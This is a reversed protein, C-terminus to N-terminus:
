AKILVFGILGVVAMLAVMWLVTALVSQKKVRFFPYPGDYKGFGNLALMILGYALTILVPLLLWIEDPRTEWLLYSLLSMAPCLVHHFLGNGRILLKKADGGMPILVCVTVFATMMLMVTALYRLVTAGVTGPSVIFVVSAVLVVINSIQTYFVFNEWKRKRVMSLGIGELLILLFNAYLAM